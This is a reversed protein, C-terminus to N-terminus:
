KSHVARLAEELVFPDFNDLRVVVELEPFGDLVLCLFLGHKLYADLLLDPLPLVFVL